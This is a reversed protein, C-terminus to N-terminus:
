RSTRTATTATSSCRAPRGSHRRSPARTPPRRWSGSSARSTSCTAVPVIAIDDMNFGMTEGKSQLVGIVRFRADGIRVSKGLPNEGQFVERMLIQGIVAVRDGQRPDGPPLFQGSQTALNRVKAYEATTGIIRVTRSRGGYEFAATGLALPAVARVTPVRRRIAEADEITLDRVTGGFTPTTGSTEVKGPFIMVLNTGIGAFEKVVYGKAAEGLATLLLVAVVGIVIGALTLGTRLKHLKLSEAALGILDTWRM